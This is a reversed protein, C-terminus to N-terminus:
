DLLLRDLLSEFFGNLISLHGREAGVASGNISWSPSLNPDLIVIAHRCIHFIRLLGPPDGCDINQLTVILIFRKRIPQDLLRKSIFIILVGPDLLKETVRTADPKRFVSAM